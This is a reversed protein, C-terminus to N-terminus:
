RRIYTLLGGRGAQLLMERREAPPRDNIYSQLDAYGFPEVSEITFVYPYDCKWRCYEACDNVALLARNVAAPLGKAGLAEFAHMTDPLILASFLPEWPDVIRIYIVSVPDYPSPVVLGAVYLRWAKAAVM